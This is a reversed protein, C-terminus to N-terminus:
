DLCSGTGRRLVLSLEEDSLTINRIADQECSWIVNPSAKDQQLMLDGGRGATIEFGTGDCTTSQCVLRGSSEKCTLSDELRSKDPGAFNIVARVIRTDRTDYSQFRLPRTLRVLQIAREAGTRATASYCAQKGRPFATDLLSAGSAVHTTACLGAFALAFVRHM